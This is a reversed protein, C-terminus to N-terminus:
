DIAKYGMQQLWTEAQKLTDFWKESHWSKSKIRIRWQGRPQSVTAKVGEDDQYTRPKMQHTQQHRTNM